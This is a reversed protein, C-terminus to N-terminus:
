NRRAPRDALINDTERESRTLPRLSASCVMEVRHDPDDVPEVHRFAAPMRSGPMGPVPVVRVVTGTPFLHGFILHVHRQPEYVYRCGVRPASM